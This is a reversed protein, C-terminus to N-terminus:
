KAVASRAAELHQILYKMLHMKMEAQSIKVGITALDVTELGEYGCPNIQLFPALDMAVNLSLGHYSCGKRIKIGLAAIKALTGNHFTYVGPANPKRQADGVGVQVLADIISQELLQVYERVKLGFRRLDLLPYVVIQGPGHYTIQGGRDTNVLPINSRQLLHGPDGALGLTFVPPHECIWIQDSDGETRTDTFNRMAEWTPMYEVLGLERIQLPVGVQPTSPQPLSAQQQIM